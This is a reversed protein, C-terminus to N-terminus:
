KKLSARGGRSRRRARDRCVYAGRGLQIWRSARQTCLGSAGPGCRCAALRDARGTSRAPRASPQQTPHLCILVRLVERSVPHIKALQPAVDWAQVLSTPAGGRDGWHLRRPRHQPPRSGAPYACGPTTRHLEATLHIVDRPHGLDAETALVHTAINAPGFIQNHLQRDDPFEEATTWGRPHTAPSRGPRQATRRSDHRVPATHGHRLGKGSRHTGSSRGHHCLGPRRAARRGLSRTSCVTHLSM